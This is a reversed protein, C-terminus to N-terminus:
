KTEGKTLKSLEELNFEFYYTNKKNNIGSCRYTFGTLNYDIKEFSMSWWLAKDINDNIIQYFGNRTEILDTLKDIHITRGIMKSKMHFTVMGYNDVQITICGNSTDSDPRFKTGYTNIFM